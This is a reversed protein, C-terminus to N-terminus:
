HRGIPTQFQNNLLGMLNSAKSTTCAFQRGDAKDTTLVVAGFSGEGLTQGFDFNEERKVM